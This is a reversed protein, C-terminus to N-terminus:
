SPVVNRGRGGRAGQEAGEVILEGRSYVRTPFCGSFGEYPTWGCKSHLDEGRVRRMEAPDFVSLDADKGASISGKAALGFRRAPNTCILDILREIGLKKEVVKALMLPVMTEVGPIGSPSRGADEKESLLHPAHDSGLTTIRGDSLAAWLAARDTTDRLPPNVKCHAERELNREGWKIDLLLHHPTAELTAGSDRAAELGEASSVHLIHFSRSHHGLAAVARSVASAEAATSRVSDHWALVGNDKDPPITRGFMAGDESHAALPIGAGSIMPGFRSLDEIPGFPHSGTTEGLFAKMGVPRVKDKGLFYSAAKEPGMASDVALYLGFDIYAKERAISDKDDLSNRDCTPPITNPMDLVTTVGGFAASITGTRLDEKRTLGPDRMHVHADIAGPLIFGKSIRHVEGAESLGPPIRRVEAIRGGEICVSVEQVTGDM